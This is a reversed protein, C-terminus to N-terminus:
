EGDFEIDSNNISSLAVNIGAMFAGAEAEILQKVMLEIIRDNQEATLNDLSALYDSLRKAAALTKENRNIILREGDESVTVDAPEIGTALYKNIDM